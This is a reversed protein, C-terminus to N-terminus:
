NIACTPDAKLIAAFHLTAEITDTLLDNLSVTLRNDHEQLHNTSDDTDILFLGAPAYAHVTGHRYVRVLDRFVAKYRPNVSGLVDVIFVTTRDENSLGGKHRPRGEGCYLARPLGVLLSM